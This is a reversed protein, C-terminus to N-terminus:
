SSKTKLLEAYIDSIDSSANWFTEWNINGDKALINKATNDEFLYVSVKNQEIFARSDELYFHKKIAEPNDNKKAEILNAIHDVIYPSHTTILVHLGVNTLMSLFEIIEVQAAPHLHMEPEDIIILDNPKAQYRLYLVLPMLEKIMSSTIYLPVVIFVAILLQM